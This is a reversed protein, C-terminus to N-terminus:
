LMLHVGVYLLLGSELSGFAEHSSDHRTIIWGVVGKVTLSLTRM